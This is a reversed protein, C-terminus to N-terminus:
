PEEHTQQSRAGSVTHTHFHEGSFQRRLMAIIEM